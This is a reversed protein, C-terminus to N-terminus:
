RLYFIKGLIENLLPVWLLWGAIFWVVPTILSVFLSIRALHSYQTAMEWVAQTVNACWWVFLCLVTLGVVWFSFQWKLFDVAVRPFLYTIGVVIWPFILVFATSIIIGGEFKDTWISPKKERSSSLQEMSSSM